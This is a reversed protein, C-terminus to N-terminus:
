AIVLLQTDESNWMFRRAKRSLIICGHSAKKEGAHAISDGHILFGDRGLPDTGAQPELRICFPGRDMSDFVESLVWIGRPIPGVNHAQEMAPNNLGPGFGSYGYELVQGDESSMEGTSQRYRWM